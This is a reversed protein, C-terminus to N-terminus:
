QLLNFGQFGKMLAIQSHIILYYPVPLDAKINKVLTKRFFILNVKWIVYFRIKNVSRLLTCTIITFSRIVKNQQISHNM